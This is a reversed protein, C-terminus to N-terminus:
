GKISIDQKRGNYKLFNITKRYPIQHQNCFYRVDIKCYEYLFTELLKNKLEEFNRSFQKNAYITQCKRSCFSKTFIPKNCNKCFIVPACPNSGHISVGFTETNGIVGHELKM